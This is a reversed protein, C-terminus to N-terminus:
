TNRCFFLVFAIPRMAASIECVMNEWVGRPHELDWRFGQETICGARMVYM